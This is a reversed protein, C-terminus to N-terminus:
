WCYGIKGVFATERSAVEACQYLCLSTTSGFIENVIPNYTFCLFQELGVRKGDGLNALAKAKFVGLM